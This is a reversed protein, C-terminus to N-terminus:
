VCVSVYEECLCRLVAISCQLGSGSWLVECMCMCECMIVHVLELMETRYFRAHRGLGSYRVCVYIRVLM